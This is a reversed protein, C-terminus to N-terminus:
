LVRQSLEMIVRLLHEVVILTVGSRNLRRILELAVTIEQPNLGSLV